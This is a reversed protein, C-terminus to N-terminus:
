TSIILKTTLTMSESESLSKSKQARLAAGLSQGEAVLRVQVVYVGTVQILISESIGFTLDM